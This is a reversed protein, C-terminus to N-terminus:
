GKLIECCGEAPGLSSKKFFDGDKMKELEWCGGWRRSGPGPKNKELFSTVVLCKFVYKYTLMNITQRKWKKKKKALETCINNM